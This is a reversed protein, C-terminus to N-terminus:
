YSRRGRNSYCLNEEKKKRNSFCFSFPTFQETPLQHDSTFQNKTFSHIREAPHTRTHTHTFRNATSNGTNEFLYRLPGEFVTLFLSITSAFATAVDASFYMSHPKPILLFLLKLTRQNKKGRGCDGTIDTWICLLDTCMNIIEDMTASRILYEITQFQFHYKLRCRFLFKKLNPIGRESKRKDIPSTLVRTLAFVYITWYLIRPFFIATGTWFIGM